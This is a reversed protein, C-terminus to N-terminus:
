RTTRGAIRRVLEAGVWVALLAVVVTGVLYAVAFGYADVLLLSHIELVYASFTTFGGLVGVGFFPRLLRPASWVRTVFIMFAGIILCGLGNTVFTAWPFAGSGHPVVVSIGYRALAGLAGGAAVASVDIFGAAVPTPRRRPLPDVAPDVPHAADCMAIECKVSSAASAGSRPGRGKSSSHRRAPHVSMRARSAVASAM